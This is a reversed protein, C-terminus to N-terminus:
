VQGCAGGWSGKVLAAFKKKDFFLTYKTTIKFCWVVEDTM